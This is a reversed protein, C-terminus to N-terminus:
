TIIEYNYCGHLDKATAGCQIAISFAQGAPIDFGVEIENIRNAGKAKNYDFADTEVDILRDPIEFMKAREHYGQIFNDAQGSVVVWISLLRKKEAETSKLGTDPTSKNAVGTVKFPQRFIM